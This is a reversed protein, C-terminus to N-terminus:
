KKSGKAAKTQPMNSTDSREAAQNVTNVTSPPVQGAKPNTPLGRQAILEMARDIPIRVTGANQDIWDYSHLRKEETLRFDNLETRENDELRPNPITKTIEEHIQPFSASRSDSPRSATVLPNQPQQHKADYSQMAKYLGWLVAAVLIGAVALSILFAYIAKPSLDQREFGAEGHHMNPAHESM